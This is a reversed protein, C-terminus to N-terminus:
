IHHSKALKLIYELYPSLEDYYTGYEVIKVKRAFYDLTPRMEEETSELESFEDPGPLRTNKLVIWYHNPHENADKMEALDKFLYAMHWDTLGGEGVGVFVLSRKKQVILIKLFNLFTTATNKYEEESIVFNGKDYYLGHVHIVFRSHFGLDPKDDDPIILDLQKIDSLDETYDLVNRFLASALFTDYNATLLVNKECLHNLAKALPAHPNSKLQSLALETLRRFTGNLNNENTSMIGILTSKFDTVFDKAYPSNTATSFQGFLTHLEKYRAQFYKLKEVENAKCSDIEYKLENLRQQCANFGREWAGGSKSYTTVHNIRSILENIIQTSQEVGDYRGWPNLAVRRLLCEFDKNVASQPLEKCVRNIVFSILKIDVDIESILAHKEQDNIFNKAQKTKLLEYDTEFAIELAKNLEGKEEKTLIELSSIKKDIKNRFELLDKIDELSLYSSGYTKFFEKAVAELLGSWSGVTKICTIANDKTLIPDLNLIAASVGAGTFICCKGNQLRKSLELELGQPEHNLPM